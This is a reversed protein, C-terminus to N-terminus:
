LHYFVSLFMVFVVITRKQRQRISGILEYRRRRRSEPIPERSCGPDAAAVSRVKLRSVERPQQWRDISSPPAHNM